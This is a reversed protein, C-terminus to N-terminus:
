LAHDRHAGIVVADGREAGAPRDRGQHRLRCAGAADAAGRRRRRHRLRPARDRPHPPDHGIDNALATCSSARDPRKQRPSHHLFDPLSDRPVAIWRLRPQRSAPQGAEPIITWCIRAGQISRSRRRQRRRWSEDRAIYSFIAALQTTARRGFEVTVAPPIPRVLSSSGREPVLEEREAEALAEDLDAWGGRLPPRARGGQEEMM